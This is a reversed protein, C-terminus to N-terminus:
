EMRRDAPDMRVFREPDAKFRDLCAVSCFFYTTGDHDWAGAATDRDAEMGCVPDTV